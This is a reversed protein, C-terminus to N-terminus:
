LESGTPGNTKITHALKSLIRYLEGAEPNWHAVEQGQSTVVQVDGRAAPGTLAQKPGLARVNEVTSDLLKENLRRAIDDVVGADKWADRAIAQLVVTFNNSIVAAAHYLSKTESRIAFCEAGLQELVPQIVSLAAEDGELGCLTGGFQDKAREPVAFSLVPHVSALRWNLRRLPGMEDAPFFGSCHLAASTRAAETGALEDALRAAVDAIQTDPVTIFWLDAPRLDSIHKVARGAKVQEVAIQASSHTASLIDQVRFNSNAALLHLFTRGVRGAGILNITVSKM